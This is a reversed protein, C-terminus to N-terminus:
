RKMEAWFRKMGERLKKRHEESKESDWYKKTSESRSMHDISM